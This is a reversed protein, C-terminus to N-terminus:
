ALETAAKSVDDEHPSFVNVEVDMGLSDAADGFYTGCLPVAQRADRAVAVRILDRSGVIANTPDFEVWGSGPLYVQCWAHTSGGGLYQVGGLDRDPVYIYGSVFRAALGLSRVAEMMLVAFDRCTGRRSELTTVPDQTGREGRRAYVFSERVAHTMTMLMAGTATRGGIRLFRRAWRGVLDLPDPYGRQMLPALDSREAEEYVVPYFRAEDALRFDPANFPTHDLTIASQIRLIEAPREFQALTVCNGFVDHIWRLDSPDPSIDLECRLLRQDYSDRPRLLM